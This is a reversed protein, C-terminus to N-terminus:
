PRRTFRLALGLAKAALDVPIIEGRQNERGATGTGGRIRRGIEEGGLLLGARFAGAEPAPLASRRDWARARRDRGLLGKGGREVTGYKGRRAPRTRSPLCYPHCEEEPNTAGPDNQHDEVEQGRLAIEVREGGPLAPGPHFTQFVEGLM